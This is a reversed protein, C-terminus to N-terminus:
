KLLYATVDVHGEAKKRHLVYSDAAVYVQVHWYLRDDRDTANMGDVWEDFDSFPVLLVTEDSGCGLAVWADASEQLEERQHPHFSFWYLVRGPKEHAKSVLCRVLTSGDSSAFLTRSRKVLAKGFAAEVRKICDTHYAVPTFKKERPVTEGVERPEEPPVVEGPGKEQRVDGATSFVLDIIDDLKTYERPLLIQRTKQVVVPDELDQKLNMLRMLADVSILRIDWAHRSGRIQAELDGTDSRGVVILISSTGKAAEGSTILNHRYGAVTELDIRYADTTKVEVVITHGDESRWLGDYGNAGKRGRYLGDEVSFGLRVGVHNVADQLAFGSGDFKETLCQDAYRELFASPVEALFARFEESTRSGDKLKGGGAFAIIQHVSKDELLERSSQWLDLLAM